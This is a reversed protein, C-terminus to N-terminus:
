SMQPGLLAVLPFNWEQDWTTLWPWFASAGLIDTGDGRATHTFCHPKHTCKDRCLRELIPFAVTRHTEQAGKWTAWVLKLNVRWILRPHSQVKHNRAEVGWTNAHVSTKHPSRFWVENVNPLLRAVPAKSGTKFLEPSIRLRYSNAKRTVCQKQFPFVFPIAM